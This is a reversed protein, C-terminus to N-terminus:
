RVISFGIRFAETRRRYNLLSEALNSAYQLHLYIDLHDALFRNLPYTLDAQFSAGQNAWRVHSDLVFGDAMGTKLQLDFYGRYDDIDPNTEDDNLIYAWIRPAVQLGIRSHRDYFILIPKIYAFNTSRSLDEGRGNSEHQFGTQIFFGKASFPRNKLNNSLFFLEPKYSTDEFAASSSDLDWFSTQTYGFQFGTLWPYKLAMRNEKRFLQYKFSIQFKSKAPDTGLLFYMPNYATINALYPQYLRFLDELADYSPIGYPASGGFASKSDSISVTLLVPAADIDVITMSVTGALTAPLTVTYPMEVFQHPQIATDELTKASTAQVTLPRDLQRGSLRCTVSAPITVPIPADDPNIFQLIFASEMGPLVVPDAPRIIVSPQGYCATSVALVLLFVSFRNM